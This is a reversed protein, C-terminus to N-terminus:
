IVWAAFYVYGGQRIAAATFGDGTNYALTITDGPTIGVQGALSRYKAVPDVESLLPMLRAKAAQYGAFSVRDHPLDITDGHDIARAGWAALATDPVLQNAGFTLPLFQSM